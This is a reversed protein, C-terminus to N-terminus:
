KPNEGAHGFTWNGRFSLGSIYVTVESVKPKQWRADDVRQEWGINLFGDWDMSSGLHEHTPQVGSVHTGLEAGPSHSIRLEGLVVVDSACM